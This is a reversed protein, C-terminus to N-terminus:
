SERNLNFLIVSALMGSLPIMDRVIRLYTNEFGDQLTIFLPFGVQTDTGTVVNSPM